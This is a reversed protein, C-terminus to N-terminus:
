EKGDQDEQIDEHFRNCDGCYKQAVDNANYSKRGCILCVIAHGDEVIEYTKNSENAQDLSHKAVLEVILDSPIRGEKRCRQIYGAEENTPYWPRQLIYSVTAKVCESYLEDKWWESLTM